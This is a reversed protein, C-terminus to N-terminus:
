IKRVYSFLMIIIYLTFIINFLLVFYCLYIWKLLKDYVKNKYFIQLDYILFSNIFLSFVIFILSLSLLFIENKVFENKDRFYRSGALVALSISTFLGINRFTTQFLNYIQMNQQLNNDM